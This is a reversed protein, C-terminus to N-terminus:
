WIARAPARWRRQRGRRRDGARRRLVAADGLGAEVAEDRGAAAHDHHRRDGDAVLHRRDPLPRRRRRPSVMGVGGPQDARRGFGAAAALRALNAEGAGRRRGDAFPHRDPRHLLHQGQTQRRGGLLPEDDSLQPRGRVDADDRRQGAPWLRHLQPGDGLRRRGHVLLRRRRSLRVRISADDRCLRSLRGDHAGRGQARRDLRVHLPHVAPRGREDAGPPMRRSAQAAAEHLWVDRNPEWAVDGGTHKVVLVHKVIGPAKKVAADVNAKLPVRAAAACVRTPPSSSRRPRARSAGPWRTPRSAASCSPICPASARAPSCRM